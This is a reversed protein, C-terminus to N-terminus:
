YYYRNTESTAFPFNPLINFLRLINHGLNYCISGISSFGSQFKQVLDMQLYLIWRICNLNHVLDHDTIRFTKLPGEM